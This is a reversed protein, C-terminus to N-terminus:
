QAQAGNDEQSAASAGGKRASQLGTITIISGCPTVRLAECRLHRGRSLLAIRSLPLDTTTQWKLQDLLGDTYRDHTISDWLEVM